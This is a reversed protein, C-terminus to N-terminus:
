TSGKFHAMLHPPLGLANMLRRVHRLYQWLPRKAHALRHLATAARLVSGPIRNDQLAMYNPHALLAKDILEALEGLSIEPQYWVPRLLDNEPTVQGDQRAQRELPAGKYIRIGAVLLVLHDSPIHKEIFRLTQEVTRKNEGPGGFMFYWVIPLKSRRSIRAARAIDDVAFNKGLSKLMTPSATEPTISVETFNAQLLLQFLEETVAGPNIGMTSFSAPFKRSALAKCIDIAHNLPINFTSDVFEISTAGGECIGEEVERVVRHPSKLRYHSGEIQNYVCYTCKLGCGRKTQVGLAGNYALYRPLDLWKHPRPLPLADLDAIRAPENVRVGGATRCTLGPLEQASGGCALTELLRLFALEGDGRILFDAGLYELLEKPMIGAAPGGIVVRCDAHARCPAVVKRQIDPLYFIPRQWDVNDINRVSIGIVEPCFQRVARAVAQEPHDEFCLDEFRVQHGAEAVSSAVGCAGIPPVPWPSRELNSNILLVRM